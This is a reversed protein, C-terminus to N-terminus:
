AARRLVTLGYTFAWVVVVLWGLAIGDQYDPLNCTEPTIATTKTFTGTGNLQTGQYTISSPSSFSADLRYPNTGVM